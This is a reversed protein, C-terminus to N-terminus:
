KLIWSWCCYWCCLWLLLLCLPKRLLLPLERTCIFRDDLQRVWRLSRGTLWPINRINLGYLDLGWDWCSLLLLGPVLRLNGYMCLVRPGSMNGHLYVLSLSIM